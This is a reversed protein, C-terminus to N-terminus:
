RVRRVPCNGRIAHADDSEGSTSRDGRSNSEMVRRTAPGGECGQNIGGSAPKFIRGNWRICRGHKDRRRRVVIESEGRIADSQVLLPGASVFWGFQVHVRLTAVSESHVFLIERGIM